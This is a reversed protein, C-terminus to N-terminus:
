YNCMKMGTNLIFVPAQFDFKTGRKYKECHSHPNMVGGLDGFCNVRKLKCQKLILNGSWKQVAGNIENPGSILIEPVIM